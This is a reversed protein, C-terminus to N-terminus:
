IDMAHQYECEDCLAHLSDDGNIDHEYPDIRLCVDPLYKHCTWCEMTTSPKM